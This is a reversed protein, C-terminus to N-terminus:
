RSGIALELRPGEFNRCPMNVEGEVTPVEGLTFGHEGPKMRLTQRAIRQPGQSAVAAHLEAGAQARHGRGPSADDEVEGAM